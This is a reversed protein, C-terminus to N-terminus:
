EPRSKGEVAALAEAAAKRILQYRDQCAERLAPLAQRAAPGIKGLACAAERRSDYTRDKLAAVLVPIGAQAQPIGLRALAAAAELRVAASSDALVQVLAPVAAEARSPALCGLARAARRRVAARRDGLWPLVKEEGDIRALAVTAVARLHADARENQILVLLDPIVAAARPGIKGLAHIAYDAGQGPPRSAIVQRLAPVAEAANPGIFGLANFVGLRVLNGRTQQMTALLPKVAPKGVKGLIEAATDHYSGLCHILGPIAAPSVSSLKELAQLAAWRLGPKGRALVQRAAREIEPPSAFTPLFQLAQGQVEPSGRRLAQRCLRAGAVPDMRCLIALRRADALGGRLSLGREVEAVITPGFAPLVENVLLEGLEWRRDGLGRLLPEVLRLDTSTGQRHAERLSELCDGNVSALPQLDRVPSSTTWPGSPAVPRLTGPVGATMLSARVQRVGLLLDLLSRSAQGPSPARTVREAADALRALASVQQGLKRLAVGHRRLGEDAPAAVAGAALLRDVAAALALLQTRSM